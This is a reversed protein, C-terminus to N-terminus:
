KDFTLFYSRLLRLNKYGAISIQAPDLAAFHSHWLQLSFNFPYLSASLLVLLWFALMWARARARSPADARLDLVAGPESNM